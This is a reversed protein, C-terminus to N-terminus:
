ISSVALQCVEVIAMRETNASVLRDGGLDGVGAFVIIAASYALTRFSARRNLRLNKCKGSM